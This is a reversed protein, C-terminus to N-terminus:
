EVEEFKLKYIKLDKKNIYNLLYKAQEITGHHIVVNHYCYSCFNGPKDIPENERYKSAIVFYFDDNM